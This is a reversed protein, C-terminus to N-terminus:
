ISINNKTLDKGTSYSNGIFTFTAKLEQFFDWLSLRKEVLLDRFIGMRLKEM